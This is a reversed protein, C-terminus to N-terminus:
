ADNQSLNYFRHFPKWFDNNPLRCQQNQIDKKTPHPFSLATSHLAISGPMWKEPSRYKKDGVIPCGINALQVRIQHSRGTLPNVKLLFRGNDEALVEYTLRGLKAQATSKSVVRTVNKKVNKLLYDRLEGSYNPPLASTVALYTKVTDRQKFADTLRPLAKSTRAMLLLGSVPRDLRHVPTLFVNGPKNYKEKLYAKGKDEASEDGTIDSHTLLGAPKNVILIHNDEWLIDM